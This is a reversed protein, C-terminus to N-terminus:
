VSDEIILGLHRVKVALELRSRYGTKQLMNKIHMKVTPEKLDLRQAIEANSAGSVLEKLIDIERETFETSLAEGISVKPQNAPYVIEGAMVRDMIELIPQEQVEKQWFGEM